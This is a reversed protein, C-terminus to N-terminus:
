PEPMVMAELVYSVKLTSKKAKAKTVTVKGITSMSVHTGGCPIWQGGVRIVRVRADEAEFMRLDADPCLDLTEDKKLFRVAVEEIAPDAVGVAALEAMKASLREPLSDKDETSLREQASRAEYEVYPGEPFHYGKTPMITYGLAMMGVDLAHGASHIRACSVRWDGDIELM